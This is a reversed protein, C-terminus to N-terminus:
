SSARIRTRMTSLSRRSDARRSSSTRSRNLTKPRRMGSNQQSSRQSTQQRRSRRWRTCTSRRSRRNGWQCMPRLNIWQSPRQWYDKKWNNRLEEKVSKPGMKYTKAPTGIALNAKCPRLWSSAKTTGHITWPRKGHSTSNPSSTLNPPWPTEGRWVRHCTRLTREFRM